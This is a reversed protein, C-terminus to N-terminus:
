AAAPAMTRGVPPTDRLMLVLLGALVALGISLLWVWDYRAFADFLWGGLFAGVAGGLAHGASILGMALGMVRLGLHSAVLSATPPVTSYDFIGFLVAFIFLLRIDAAVYLLLIFSLGRAIYIIGLLLPRNMQDSLWGALIMGALNVASLVGYATASPLPPFGCAAAYPLLHTEIVGTTTFGCLAFSWFLIHFVPSRVLFWLRERLPEHAAAAPEEDQETARRRLSIVIVPVLAFCALGLALFSWRWGVDTLLLALLPVVLLQGATSGSTAIGTALGRHREFLRAVVTAVVHTAVAGFGLAAILSFAFLFLWRSDMVAVLLMGFGVVATGGGLLLRAGHRDVLNGAVPAVVAMVVLALAGGFSVFSRPWGLESEWLPMALGLASRASFALALALFGIGVLLWPGILSTRTM